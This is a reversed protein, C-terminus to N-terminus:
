GDVISFNPASSYIKYDFPTSHSQLLCRYSHLPQFGFLRVPPRAGGLGCGFDRSFDGTYKALAQFLQSKPQM